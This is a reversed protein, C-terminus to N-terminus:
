FLINGYSPQVTVERVVEESLKFKPWNINYSIRGDKTKKSKRHV